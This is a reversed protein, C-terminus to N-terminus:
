PKIVVKIGQGSSAYEFAKSIDDLPFRDTVLSKFFIQNEKIIEIARKHQIPTSGHSGTLTLERYHLENTILELKPSPKPLGGFFNIAGGNALFKIGDIHTEFISCATFVYDYSKKLKDFNSQLTEKTYINDAIGLNELNKKRYQNVEVFDLRECKHITKALYGLMIGIPGAGFVLMRSNQNMHVKELGNLSCALPEGLCALELDIDNSLKVVPGHNFIRNDLNMYEAFGGKLQYGIALNKKCLNPKNSLCENCKGCPIDAGLSLKDGIEFNENNTAVVTGSVEHGIIAPYSIRDNGYNFIRIDSGCIACSDVKIKVSYSEIKESEFSQVSFEKKGYLFAAKNM